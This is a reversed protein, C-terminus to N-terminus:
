DVCWSEVSVEPLARRKGYTVESSVQFWMKLWEQLQSVVTVSFSLRLKEMDTSLEARGSGWRWRGDM